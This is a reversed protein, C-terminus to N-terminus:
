ALFICKRFRILFAFTPIFLLHALFQLKSVRDLLIANPSTRTGTIFEWPVEWLVQCGRESSVKYVTNTRVGKSVGSRGSEVVVGRHKFPGSAANSTVPKAFETWKICQGRLFLVWKLSLVGSRASTLHVIAFVTSTWRCTDYVCRQIMCRALDLVLNDTCTNAAFRMELSGYLIILVEPNQM